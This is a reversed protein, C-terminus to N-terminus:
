GGNSHRDFQVLIMEHRRIFIVVNRREIVGYMTVILVNDNSVFAIRSPARGDKIPGVAEQSESMDNVITSILVLNNHEVFAVDRKPDDFEIPFAYSAEPSSLLLLQNKQSISIGFTSGNLICFLHPLILKQM